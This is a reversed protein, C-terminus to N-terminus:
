WGSKKNKSKNLKELHARNEEEWQRKNNEFNKRRIELAEWEDDMKRKMTEHRRQLEIESDKLRKKKEMVKLQFVNEMEKEMQAMRTKHNRKEEEIQEIPNKSDSGADNFIVSSGNDSNLDGVGTAGKSSANENTILTSVVPSLKRQRFNEYHYTATTDILDQMHSQLLMKRLCTFDCHDSNEIEAIGWPYRRARTREKTQKNELIYNSGIVAFPIKNRLEEFNNNNGNEAFDPFSYIHINNESIQKLINHKFLSIEEQTLADAKSIVPIINVKDHLRKMFEIDLAKM